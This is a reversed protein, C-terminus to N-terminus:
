DAPNQRDEDKGEAAYLAVVRHYGGRRRGEGGGREEEGRRRGGGGRQRREGSSRPPPSSTSLRQPAIRQLTKIKLVREACCVYFSAWM